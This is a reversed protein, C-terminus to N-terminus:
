DSLPTIHTRSCIYEPRAPQDCFPEVVRNTLANYVFFVNSRPAPTINGNSGHLVNCDFVIVSGPKSKATVISGNDILTKLQADSPVGYEQKKLSAKFHNEPTEGVCTAFQRHSGPVLMLPGNFDFNETLTISMSLARMRPMGDEVHWTEFDSHWYFEKGRFGPKYNLRSQHIYVEDDLIYRALEALRPDAALKSFLPSCEHVRFISRVEGSGPETITEGSARIAEDASLRELEQQFMRVEVDSFVDELVVFGNEAYEGIQQPAIPAVKNALAYVTPDQREIFHNGGQRSPYLDENVPPATM